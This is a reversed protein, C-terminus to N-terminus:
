GTERSVVEHLSAARPGLARMRSRVLTDVERPGRRSCSSRRAGLEGGGAILLEHNLFM